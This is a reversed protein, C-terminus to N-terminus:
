LIGRNYYVLLWMRCRGSWGYIETVFAIRMLLKEKENLM